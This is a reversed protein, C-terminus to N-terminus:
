DFESRQNPSTKAENKEGGLSAPDNRLVQFLYRLLEHETAFHLLEGTYANELTARWVTQEQSRKLRLLYAQHLDGM